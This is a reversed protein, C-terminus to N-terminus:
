ASPPSVVRYSHGKFVLTVDRGIALYKSIGPTNHILDFYDKSGFQITLAKPSSGENYTSDVWAGNKLYFTKDEISKIASSEEDKAIVDTNKLKYLAKSYAVASKGSEQIRPAPKTAVFGSSAERFDRVIPRDDLMQVEKVQRNRQKKEGPAYAADGESHVHKGMSTEPLWSGASVMAPAPAVMRNQHDGFQAKTSAAAMLSGRVPTTTAGGIFSGGGGGVWGRRMDGRMPMSMPMPRGNLASGHSESPDTVLFSTYNSIIGFKKSLAIIEDVVEKSDGNDQAVQTLHGIRRMAWLRPLYTHDASSNEFNLPFSYAKSVGNVKGTLNVTAKAGNKYKGLLLVQSGAFIDKVERPYTDKVTIGDYAISVNSLVPSKIKQYFGSLATELNESPEVYQATGHHDEALKNLLKTNVDYGVGFDFIRTDRKPAISKLLTSINTEGVTPEGDTMLVVYAPRESVQNLMTLGTHMADSINTGGRAELDDIFAAAAKKNEPTAPVVQTKFSEVDTAFQVISFKDAPSLADVIYKLAKKTQVIKDGQMSGSTDAVLVIDKGIVEKSQLPPSLTLLFYGDEGENKHTLLNAALDKNSVSYYLLFDKDPISDHALMSVKAQNNDTRNSTITHTPSWITRLGSKSNLKADIKVEDIPSTEGEAKLPFRYKLMGNEAHLIQTYELEVKKTGHAPIPFIRARVTKYDAYELLGPDVMSRVIAEYQTRAEQAELIKGEVPKGDIHLSFSSFTTDEPLPFLYTGALNRDTDNSFTQTIYTKAVQDTIDVKIQESQMHLGFSVGGKLVPHPGPNPIPPVIPHGPRVPRVPTVPALIPRIPPMLLAGGSVASDVVIFGSAQSMPALLITTALSLASALALRKM